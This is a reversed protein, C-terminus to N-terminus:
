TPKAGKTEASNEISGALGLKEWEAELGMGKQMNSSVAGAIEKKM